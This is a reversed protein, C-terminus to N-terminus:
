DCKSRVPNEINGFWKESIPLMHKCTLVPEEEGDLFIHLDDLAAMYYEIKDAVRFGAIKIITIYIHSGNPSVTFGDSHGVLINGEPEGRDFCVLPYWEKNNFAEHLQQIKFFNKASM